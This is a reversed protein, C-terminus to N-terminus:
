ALHLRQELAAASLLLNCRTDPLLFVMYAHNKKNKTKERKRDMFTQLVTNSYSKEYPWIFDWESQLYRNFRKKLPTQLQEAFDTTYKLFLMIM